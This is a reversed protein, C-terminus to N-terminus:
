IINDTLIKIAKSPLYNKSQNLCNLKLKYKDEFNIFQILKDELDKVDRPKFLFGNEGNKILESNYKWNSAIVPLAAGFADLITGAFGEGDYFTPFLLADYNKLTNISETTDVVGRYTIGPYDCRLIQAFKESYQPEIAGYIDLTCYKFNSNLDLIAEIAIGIGKEEMVRSFTCFKFPFKLNTIIDAEHLIITEKFNPMVKVNKFVNINELKNKMDKTEVYIYDVKNLFFSLCPHSNLLDPLWGGVVVYHLRFKYVVKLLVFLPGLVKVGNNAPLIIINKCKRSLCFCEKLLKLPNKFWNTTSSIIINNDGYTRILADYIGHTKIMQGCCPEGSNFHGCIGIKFNNDSM